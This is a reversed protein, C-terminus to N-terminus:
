KKKGAKAAEKPPEAYDMFGRPQPPGDYALKEWVSPDSYYIKIVLSRFQKYFMRNHVSIHKILLNIDETNELSYFPKKFKARSIADINWFGADLFGALGKDARVITMVKDKIGIGSSGPILAEALKAMNKQTAENFVRYGKQIEFGDSLPDEKAFVDAPLASFVGGGVVGAAITKLFTRRSDKM